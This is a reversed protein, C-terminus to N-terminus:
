AGPAAATAPQAAVPAAPRFVPMVEAAFRRINELAMEQPMGGFYVTGSITTLGAVEQWHRIAEICHQADGAIIDGSAVEAAFGHRARAQNQRPQPNPVARPTRAAAVASYREYYSAAEREAAAQSDAVYIHFKGLIERSAPDYGSEALAERYVGISHQLVSHEYMYPLTMLHYGNEGAWRYTDDSRSAGVWISPHPRQVPRPLVRVGEYDFLTGHFTVAEDAWASQIIQMAERMRVPSDATDIRFDQFEGPTSGRGVGFELRGGSIVDLMAYDEAVLLPNHLPLVSIAVGLHIQQTTRAVGALFTPPHPITGGYNNFHHETVWVDRYGLADLLEIQEYMRRYFEPEPGDLEPVYTPLYHAGFRM